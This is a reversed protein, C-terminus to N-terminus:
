NLRLLEERVRTFVSQWDGPSTQRFIRLSPYWPSDERKLFWRWDNYYSLLLWVKKGMAGALHVVSTDVSIILDLNEIIAATDAFNNISKSLSIFNPRAPLTNIEDEFPGKQLSFFIYPIEGAINYFHEIATSRKKFTFNPYGSKWVIGAKLNKIKSFKNKWFSSLQQDAKIYPIKAPITDITTNCIKPLSMLPVSIDYESIPKNDPLAEGILDFGETNKLLSLLGTKCEFIIFRKENKFLKLYRCFLITDGLGQESYVYIRKGDFFTDATFKKPMIKLGEVGSFQRWEYEELGEALKGNLLLINALLNHGNINGPEIAIIKRFCEEAKQYNCLYEWVIGLAAHMAIDGPQLSVSKLNYPLADEPRDMELFILGALNYLDANSGDAKIADGLINLALNYKGQKMAAVAEFFDKNKM